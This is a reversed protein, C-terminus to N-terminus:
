AQGAATPGDTALSSVYRHYLDLELDGLMLIGSRPFSSAKGSPYLYYMDLLFAPTITSDHEPYLIMGSHVVLDVDKNMSGTTNGTSDLPGKSTKVQM